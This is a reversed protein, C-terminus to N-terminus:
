IEYVATQRKLRFVSYISKVTNSLPAPIKFRRKTKEDQVISSQVDSLEEVLEQVSLKIEAQALRFLINKTLSFALFCLALHGKIRKPTWHYIPRIKLNHKNIRFAEEIQWLSRYRELISAATDNPLNTIVGHLGDWRADEDIKKQNIKASGGEVSLYKKTYCKWYLNINIIINIHQSKKSKNHRSWIYGRESAYDCSELIVQM